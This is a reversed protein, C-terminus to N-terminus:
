KNALYQGLETADCVLQIYKRISGNRPVWENIRSVRDTVQDKPAILIDLAKLPCYDITYAQAITYYHIECEVFDCCHMMAHGDDYLECM